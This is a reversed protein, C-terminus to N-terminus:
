KQGYIQFVHESVLFKMQLHKPQGFSCAKVVALYSDHFNNKTKKAQEQKCGTEIGVVAVNICVAQVQTNGHQFM